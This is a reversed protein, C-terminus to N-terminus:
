KVVTLKIDPDHGYLADFLKWKLQWERTEFGKVEIYEYTKNKHEVLFDVVYDAIHRGNVDLPIRIQRQWGLIEGARKRLDLEAAFAAEKKSHYQIGQYMISKAGYKNGWRQHWVMM